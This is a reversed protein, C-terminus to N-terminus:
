SRAEGAPRHGLGNHIATAAIAAEGMAVSIQHLGRVIDGAAYVGPVVTRQHSDVQLCGSDDSTAGVCKALDSRPDTGLAAYVVQFPQLVGSDSGSAVLEGAAFNLSEAGVDVVKVGDVRLRERFDRSIINQGLSLLTVDNAYTRVFLTERAAHDDGGIVAVRKGMAEFGDCIPCFRLLGSRVAEDYGPIPPCRDVVGTAIVVRRALLQRDRLSLRFIGEHEAEIAQVAGLRGVPGFEECQASLRALLDAGHIGRPYGPLNHSTPIWSARSQGEDALIVSRRFRALYLCATLGAPGGGIVVCDVIEM